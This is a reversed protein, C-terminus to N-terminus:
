IKNYPLEIRNGSIAGDKYVKEKTYVIPRLGSTATRTSDHRVVLVPEFPTGEIDSLDTLINHVTIKLNNGKLNFDSDDFTEKVVVTKPNDTGFVISAVDKKDLDTIIIGSYEQKTQPNYLRYIDKKDSKILSLNKYPKTLLKNVLKTMLDKYRKDASEWMGANEQKLSLNGIVKGDSYLRIDSKKGGTTERGAEEAKDVNNYRITKGKSKLIVNIPGGVEDVTSNIKNALFSENELGASGGGQKEKPKPIIVGKDKTIIAGISSGKYDKDWKYGPLKVFKDITSQREKSPVLLKIKDGSKTLPIIDEDKYGLKKLDSITDEKILKIGTKISEKLEEPTEKEAPTETPTEEPTEAPPEEPTSAMETEPGEAQPPTGLMLLDAIAITALELESIRALWYKKGTVKAEYLEGMWILHFYRNNHLVIKFITPKPAMIYVGSIYDRFDVTLLDILQKNLSPYKQLIFELPNSEYTIEQPAPAATVDLQQDIVEDEVEKLSKSRLIKIKM